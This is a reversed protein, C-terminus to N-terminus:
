RELKKSEELLVRTKSVLGDRGGSAFARSGNLLASAVPIYLFFLGSWIHLSRYLCKSRQDSGKAVAHEM